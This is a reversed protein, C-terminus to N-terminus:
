NEKVFAGRLESKLITILLIQAIAVLVNNPVHKELPLVNVIYNSVVRRKVSADLKQKKGQLELAKSLPLDM